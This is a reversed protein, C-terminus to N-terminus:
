PADPSTAAPPDKGWYADFAADLEPQRDGPSVHSYFFRVLERDLPSLTSANGGDAGSAFFISDTFLPSDNSVGLSQTVEEFTFHRLHSGRLQDTALLVVAKYIEHRRTWFTHVYGSNGDVYHFNKAEAIGEFDQRETFYVEISADEDGDEIQRISLPAILSSLLPLLEGLLVQGEASTRIVSLTPSRIWRACIEGEGGFEPGLTVREAWSKVTAIDPGTARPGAVRPGAVPPGLVGPWAATPGTRPTLDKSCAGLTLPLTILLALRSSARRRSAM